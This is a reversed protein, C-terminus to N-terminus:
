MMTNMDLYDNITEDNEDSDQSDSKDNKVVIGSNLKQNIEDLKAKIENLDENTASSKLGEIDARILDCVYTSFDEKDKIKDFLDENTKNFYVLKKSYKSV